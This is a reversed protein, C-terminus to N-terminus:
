YGDPRQPAPQGWLYIKIYQEIAQTKGARVAVQYLRPGDSLNVHEPVRISVALPISAGPDLLIDQRGLQIDEPDGVQSGQDPKYSSQASSIAELRYSCVSKSKNVLQIPKGLPALVEVAQGPVMEFLDIRPPDLLFAADSPNELAFQLATENRVPAVSFLLSGTIEYGIHVGKLNRNGITTVIVDAQFRRGLLAEDNPLAITMDIESEVLPPVEVSAAEPSVWDVSPIPEYGERPMQPVRITVLAEIPVNFRNGIRLPLNVLKKMSVARGIPLNEVVIKSYNMM